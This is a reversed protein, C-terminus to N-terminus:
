RLSVAILILILLPLVLGCWKALRLARSYPKSVSIKRGPTVSACVGPFAGVSVMAETGSTVAGRADCVM